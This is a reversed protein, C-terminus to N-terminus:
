KQGGLLSGFFRWGGEPQVGAKGLRVRRFKSVRNGSFKQWAAPGEYDTRRTDQKAQRGEPHSITRLADKRRSPSSERM